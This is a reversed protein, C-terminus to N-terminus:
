GLRPDALHVTRDQGPELGLKLMAGLFQLFFTLLQVADTAVGNRKGCRTVAPAQDCKGLPRALQTTAVCSWRILGFSLFPDALFRVRNPWALIDPEVVMM